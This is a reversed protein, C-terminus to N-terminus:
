LNSSTGPTAGSTAGPTSPTGSGSQGNLPGNLPGNPPGNMPGYMAPDGQGMGDEVGTVAMDKDFKVTVLSGDARTMHAEYAGDGADTEIRDVTGGPVAKLAAAKLTAAAADSVSSEDSRVPTPGLHRGSGPPMGATGSGSTAAQDNSSGTAASAGVTGALVMGAVAGVGILGAVAAAGRVTRRRGDLPANTM